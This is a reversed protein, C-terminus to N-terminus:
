TVNFSMLGCFTMSLTRRCIAASALRDGPSTAAMSRSTKSQPKSSSRIGFFELFLRRGGECSGLLSFVAPGFVLALWSALRTMNPCRKLRDTFWVADFDNFNGAVSQRFAVPLFVAILAALDEVNEKVNLDNFVTCLNQDIFLALFDCGGERVADGAASLVPACYLGGGNIVGLKLEQGIFAYGCKKGILKEQRDANASNKIEILLSIAAQSIKFVPQTLLQNLGWDQIQIFGGDVDITFFYPQM